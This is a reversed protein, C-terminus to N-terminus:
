SNPWYEGSTFVTWGNGNLPNEGAAFTVPQEAATSLQMAFVNGTPVTGGLCQDTSNCQREELYWVWGDKVFLVQTRTGNVLLQTTGAKLDYTYVRPQVQANPDSYATYAAHTGDPSINAMIPWPPGSLTTAGGEPTWSRTATYSVLFLRHSVAGDWLAASESSDASFVVAGDSVRIVTIPTSGKGALWGDALYQGDPSFSLVSPPLGFRCICDGIPQGYDHVLKAKGQSYLWVHVLNASEDSVTYALLSGDPTWASDRITGLNPDVLDQPFSATKSENGSGISHLMIDTENSSVPKLYVFTDATFLHATTNEITCVLRPHIPDTVNYILREAAYTGGIMVMAAASSGTKCAVTAQPSPSPSPLRTGTGASPSELAPLSPQSSPPAPSPNPSTVTAVSSTSSGCAVVLLLAGVAIARKMAALLGLPRPALLAGTYNRFEFKLWSSVATM